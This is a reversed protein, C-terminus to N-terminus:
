VVAAAGSGQACVKNLLLTRYIVLKMIISDKIIACPEIGNERTFLFRVCFRTRKRKSRSVPNPGAVEVKALHCEVM